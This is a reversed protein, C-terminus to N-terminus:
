PVVEQNEVDATAKEHTNILVTEIHDEGLVLATTCVGSMVNADVRNELTLFQYKM